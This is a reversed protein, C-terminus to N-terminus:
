SMISLLSFVRCQWKSLKNPQKYCNAALVWIELIHHIIEPGPLMIQIWPTQIQKIYGRELRSLMITMVVWLNERTNHATSSPWGTCPPRTFWSTHLATKWYSAIRYIFLELTQSFFCDSKQYRKKGPRPNLPLIILRLILKEHPPLPNTKKLPQSPNSVLQPSPRITWCEVKDTPARPGHSTTPLTHPHNWPILSKWLQTESHLKEDEPQGLMRLGEPKKGRLHLNFSSVGLKAVKIRITRDM